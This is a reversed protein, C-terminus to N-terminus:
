GVVTAPESADGRRALTQRAQEDVITTELERLIAETLKQFLAPAARRLVELDNQDRERTVRRLEAALRTGRERERRLEAELNRCIEARAREEDTMIARLLPSKAIDPAAGPLIRTSALKDGNPDSLRGRLHTVKGHWPTLPSSFSRTAVDDVTDDRRFGAAREAAIYEGRTVRRWGVGDGYDLWYGDVQEM